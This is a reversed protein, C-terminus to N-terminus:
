EACAETKDQPIPKKMPLFGVAFGFNENRVVQGPLESVLKDQFQPELIALRVDSKVGDVAQVRVYYVAQREATKTKVFKVKLEALGCVGQGAKLNDGFIFLSVFGGPTGRKCQWNAGIGNAAPTFRADFDIRSNVLIPGWVTGRPVNGSNAMANGIMADYVMEAVRDVAKTAAVGIKNLCKRCTKAKETKRGGCVPCGEGLLLVRSLLVVPKNWM